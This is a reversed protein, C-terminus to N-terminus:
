VWMLDSLIDDSTFLGARTLRVTGDAESLRGAALHPAAMRRFFAARAAGFRALEGLALGDSTRLRTMVLENYRDDDGLPERICPPRGPSAIYAEFDPRNARRSLGDYSHAGPGAGIYPEGRWYASNHRARRGPRAFNSIEYHEFGAAAAADMLHEYMRLSLEEGAEAVRRERRLRWLPTGEEYSLAYASLHGAPLSLAEAVDRRWGELTQGPLGYILDLSAEFGADAALRLARRAQAATHRRGLLRLLADDFTQVGMSVRNVGEARLVELLRPGVDDPNMEFTVEAGPALAYHRRVASFVAAIEDPVLQSPTGGGFYVSALPQGGSEGARAALEAALARVFDRRRAPGATTSYFDCYICRRRCFPIHLYLIM